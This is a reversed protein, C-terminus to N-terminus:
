LSQYQENHLSFICVCAAQSFRLNKTRYFVEKLRNTLTKIQNKFEEERQNAQGFGNYNSYLHIRNKKKKIRCVFMKDHLPIKILKLQLIVVFRVFSISNIMICFLRNWLIM